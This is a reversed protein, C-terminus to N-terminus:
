LTMGQEKLVRIGYHKLNLGANYDRDIKTYCTDNQCVYVRDSLSLNDHLHGCQSCQKSSPFYRDAVIYHKGKREAKYQLMTRFMGFGNDHVNKGLKRMQALNTLDLDEVVIADYENTIQYSRKHLFDKRQNKSKALLARYANMQKQYTRSYQITGNEDLPAANKKRALSKNMRRQRKEILRYYRGYNAKRGESDVYLDAQSYDLGIVKNASVNHKKEVKESPFDISLSVLYREGERRITAKKLLGEAPLPRHLQLSIGEPFKPVRLFVAGNEHIVRINQNTQNTTYSHKANKKQHFQPLGKIDRISPIYGETNMRNRAKKKYQIPKRAFTENYKQVAAQFRRKADNYVFSDNSRDLFAFRRTFETYNPVKHRIFGGAFGSAELETYLHAVYENYVKRECGFARNLREKQEDTPSIAYQYGFTVWGEPLTKKTGKRHPTELQAKM